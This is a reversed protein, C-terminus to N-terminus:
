VGPYPPYNDPLNVATTPEIVDVPLMVRHNSRFQQNQRKMQEVGFFFEERFKSGRSDGAWDAGQWLAGKILVSTHWKSPIISVDSDASLDTATPLYEIYLNIIADPIPWLGFQIVKSSDRGLPFFLRPTGTSDPDPDFLHFQEASSEKLQYPTISQRISLIRDVSSSTSYHFKRITYTVSSGDNIAAPSITATATGATHASIYYWDDSDSTRFYQGTKSDSITASFTVTTSDASTTVTGTTYDPVTQVILPTSARFFPWDYSQLIMEQTINIWREILTNDNTNTNDLGLQAAVEQQITLFQM